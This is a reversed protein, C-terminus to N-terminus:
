HSLKIKLITIFWFILHKIKMKSSGIKRYPMNIYIESVYFKKVFKIGSVVFFEYDKYKKIKTFNKIPIKKLNYLRLGSTLDYKIDFLIIIIVRGIKNIIKKIIPWNKYTNIKKNYRNSLILDYGQKSKNIFKKIIKPEHSLDGDMTIAINFNNKYAWTIGKIHANGIGLKKNRRIYKIKKNKISQLWEKTGDESSDDIILINISKIISQLKKIIIKLNSLENIVPIIILIKKM